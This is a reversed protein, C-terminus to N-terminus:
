PLYSQRSVWRQREDTALTARRADELSQQPLGTKPRYFRILLDLLTEAGAAPQM